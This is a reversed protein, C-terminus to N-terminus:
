KATLANKVLGSVVGMDARGALQPKLAAIVKGMEQPGTAGTDIIAQAVFAQVEESSFPQPMYTQIISSEFIEIKSLDDRGAANFQTISDKRQKLMKEMVALVVEDTIEIREDIERQKLAALILRIVALREKDGAKMATKMDDTLQAKLLM